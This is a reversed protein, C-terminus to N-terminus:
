AQSDRSRLRTLALVAVFLLVFIVLMAVTTGTSEGAALLIDQTFNWGSYAAIAMWPSDLRWVLAAFFLGQAFIALLELPQIGPNLLNLLSFLGAAAVGAVVQGYRRSVRLYVFGFSVEQEYASQILVLVVYVLVGLPSVQSFALDRGDFVAGLWGCLLGACLGVVVGVLTFSLRNGVPGKWLSRLYGRAPKIAWLLVLLIAMLGIFFGYACLRAIVAESLGFPALVSVLLANFPKEFVAHVLQGSAKVLLAALVWTAVIGGSLRRVLDAGKLSRLEALEKKLSDM